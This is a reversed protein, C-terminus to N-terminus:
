TVSYCLSCLSRDMEEEFEAFMVSLEEVSNVDLLLIVDM